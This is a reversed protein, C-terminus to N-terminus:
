IKPPVDSDGRVTRLLCFGAVGLLMVAFTLRGALTAWYLGPEAAKYALVSAKKSFVWVAGNLVGTVGVWLNYGGNFLSAAGIIAYGIRPSIVNEDQM